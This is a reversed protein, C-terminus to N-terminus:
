SIRQNKLNAGGGGASLATCKCQKGNACQWQDATCATGGCQYLKRIKSLDGDSFGGRQGMTVGRPLPKLAEITNGNSTSFADVPYHMVSGYDYPEGLNDIKETEYAQFNRQKGWQINDELIRVFQDRDPRSQEHVFGIAHM